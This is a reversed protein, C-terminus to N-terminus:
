QTWQAAVRRSFEANLVQYRETLAKVAARTKDAEPLLEPDDLQTFDEDIFQGVGGVQAGPDVGGEVDV